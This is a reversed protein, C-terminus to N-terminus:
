RAWQLVALHGGKAAGVCVQGGWPCDNDRAWQLVALHGREAA